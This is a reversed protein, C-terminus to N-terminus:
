RAHEMPQAPVQVDADLLLGGGANRIRVASVDRAQMPVRVAWTGGGLAPAGGVGATALRQRYTEIGSDDHLTLIFNGPADARPPLPSAASAFLSWFGHEDVSGSLALSRAAPTIDLRRGDNGQKAGVASGDVLLASEQRHNRLVAQDVRDGWAMAKRYSHISVHAPSCGSMLDYYDDRATIFRQEHASWSGEAGIGDHPFAPDGLTQCAVEELGLAWGLPTPM